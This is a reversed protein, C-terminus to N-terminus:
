TPATNANSTERSGGPSATCRELLDGILEIPLPLRTSFAQRVGHFDDLPDAAAIPNWRRFEFPRLFQGDLLHGLLKARAILNDIIPDLM